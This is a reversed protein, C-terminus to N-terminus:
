DKKNGRISNRLIETKFLTAIKFFCIGLATVIENMELLMEVM